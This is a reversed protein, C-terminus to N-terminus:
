NRVCFCASGTRNAYRGVTAGQFSTGKVYGALDDYGAVMDTGNWLLQHVTAGYEMVRLCLGGDTIEFEKVPRGDLTGCIWEKVM